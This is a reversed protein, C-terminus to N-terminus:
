TQLPPEFRFPVEPGVTSVRVNTSSANSDAGPQSTTIFLFVLTPNGQWQGTKITRSKYSTASFTVVRPVLSADANFGDGEFPYDELLNIVDSPDPESIAGQILEEISSFKLLAAIAKFGYESEALQNLTKEAECGFTGDIESALGSLTPDQVTLEVSGINTVTNAFLDDTKDGSRHSRVHTLRVQTQAGGQSISHSVSEVM